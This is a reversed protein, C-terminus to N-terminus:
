RHQVDNGPYVAAGAVHFGASIPYSCIVRGGAVMNGFSYSDLFGAVILVVLIGKAAGLIAGCFSDIYGIVSVQNIFRLNATIVFFLVLM